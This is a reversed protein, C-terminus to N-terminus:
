WRRYTLNHLMRVEEANLGKKFIQVLGIFGYFQLVSSGSGRGIYLDGTNTGVDGTYDVSNKENGNCYIKIHNRDYTGVIHYWNNELGPPFDCTVVHNEAVQFYIKSDISRLYLYYGDGTGGVRKDVIMQNYDEPSVTTKIWVEISLENSINLSNSHELIMYSSSNFYFSNEKWMADYVVGNNRYKSRDWWYSESFYRSDLWLVCSDWDIM